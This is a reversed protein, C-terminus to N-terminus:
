VTVASNASSFTPVSLATVTVTAPTAEVSLLDCNSDVGFDSAVSVNRKEVTRKINLVFEDDVFQIITTSPEVVSMARSKIASVPLVLRGNEESFESYDVKVKMNDDFIYGMLVTGYDRLVISLRHNNGEEFEIDAPANEVVLTFSIDTEYKENLTQLLWM